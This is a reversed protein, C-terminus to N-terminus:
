KFCSFFCVLFSFVQLIRAHQVKKVEHAGCPRYDVTCDYRDVTHRIHSVDQGVERLNVLYVRTKDFQDRYDPVGVVRTFGAVAKVAEALSGM